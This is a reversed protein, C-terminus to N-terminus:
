PISHLGRMRDRIKKFFMKHYLLKINFRGRERLMMMASPMASTTTTASTAIERYKITRSLRRASGFGGCDAEVATESSTRRESVGGSPAVEVATLWVTSSENVGGARLYCRKVRWLPRLVILIFNIKASM